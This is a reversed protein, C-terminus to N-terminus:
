FLCSSTFRATSIISSIVGARLSRPRIKMKPSSITSTRFSSPRQTTATRYAAPESPPNSTYSYTISNSAVYSNHSETNSAWTSVGEAKTQLKSKKIKIQGVAEMTVTYQPEDNSNIGDYYYNFTAVVPDDIRAQKANVEKVSGDASISVTWTDLLIRDNNAMRIDATNKDYVRITATESTDADSAFSSVCNAGVLLCVSMLLSVARRLKM